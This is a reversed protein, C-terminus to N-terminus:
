AWRAPDPSLVSGAWPVGGRCRPRGPRAGQQRGLLTALLM